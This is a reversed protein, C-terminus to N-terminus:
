YEVHKKYISPANYIKEIRKQQEILDKKYAEIAEKDNNYKNRYYEIMNKIQEDTKIM